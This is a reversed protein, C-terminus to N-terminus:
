QFLKYKLLIFSIFLSLYFLNYMSIVSLCQFYNFLFLHLFFSSFYGNQETAYYELIINRRMGIRTMDVCPIFDRRAMIGRDIVIWSQSKFVFKKGFKFKFFKIWKFFFFSTIYFFSLLRHFQEWSFRQKANLYPHLYSFYFFFSTSFFHQLCWSQSDISKTM